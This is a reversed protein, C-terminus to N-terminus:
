LTVIKNLLNLYVKGKEDNELYEKCKEETDFPLQLIVLKNKSLLDMVSNFIDKEWGNTFVFVDGFVSFEKLEDSGSLNLTKLGFGELYIDDTILIVKNKHLGNNLGVISKIFDERKSFLPNLLMVLGSTDLTSLKDNGLENNLEIIRAEIWYELQIGKNITNLLIHIKSGDERNLVVEHKRNSSDDTYGTMKKVFNLLYNLEKASSDGFEGKLLETKKNIKGIIISFNGESQIIKTMSDVVHMENKDTLEMDAVNFFEQMSDDIDYFKNIYDLIESKTALVASIEVEAAEELEKLSTEDLPDSMAITLLSGSLEVPFAVHKKLLEKDIIETVESKFSIESLKFLPTKLQESLKEYLTEEKVYGKGVLYDGIKEEPRKERLATEVISTTIVGADILLEGIRKKM